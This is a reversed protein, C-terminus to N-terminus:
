TLGSWSNESLPDTEFDQWGLLRRVVLTPGDEVVLQFHMAVSNQVSGIQTTSRKFNKPRYDLQM